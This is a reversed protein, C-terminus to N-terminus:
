RRRHMKGNSLRAQYLTVQCVALSPSVEIGSVGECPWSLAAPSLSVLRSGFLTGASPGSALAWDHRVRLPAADRPFM